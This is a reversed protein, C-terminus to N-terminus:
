ASKRYHQKPKPHSDAYGNCLPAADPNNFLRQEKWNTPELSSKKSMRSIRSLQRRLPECSFRLLKLAICCYCVAIILFPIWFTSCLHFLNYAARLKRSAWSAPDKWITTCQYFEPMLETARWVFFQPLSCVIGLIWCLALM